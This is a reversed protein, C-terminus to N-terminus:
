EAFGYAIQRAQLDNTMDETVTSWATAIKETKATPRIAPWISAIPM